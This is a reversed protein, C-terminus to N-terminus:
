DAKFIELEIRPKRFRRVVEPLLWAVITLLFKIVFCLLIIFEVMAADLSQSEISQMQSFYYLGIIPWFWFALLYIFIPLCFYVVTVDIIKKLKLESNM